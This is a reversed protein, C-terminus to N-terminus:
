RLSQLLLVTGIVLLGIHVYRLFSRGTMRHNVFRGIFIAVVVAPLAILYNHTVSRTWLGALWYGCM